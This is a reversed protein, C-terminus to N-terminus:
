RDAGMTEHAVVLGCCLACAFAGDYWGYVLGLACLAGFLGFLYLALM